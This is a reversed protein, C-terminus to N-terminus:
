SRSRPPGPLDSRIRASFDPTQDASRALATIDSRARLAELSLGDTQITGREWGLEDLYGNVLFRWDWGGTAGGVVRANRRITTTCNHDFANYWRPKRALSNIKVAYELLVARALDAPMTLRYLRCREGRYNTRVAIVDREEAVAYYLAYQRFFGRIASYSQGITKRTEISVALHSGDAFEWSAITHAILKPGWQCLFMDAGLVDALDFSREEWVPDFDSDSRYHFDRVNRFTIREGTVVVEPLRAVSPQWARTNSPELSLWWALVGAFLVGFAAFGRWRLRLGLLAGWAAVVFVAALVGALPRSAPGDFWIAAAAWVTALLVPFCALVRLLKVEARIREDHEHRARM